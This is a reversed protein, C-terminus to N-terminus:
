GAPTSSRREALLRAITEMLMRPEVPKVLHQTFGAEESRRRDQEQGWGTVAVLVAGRGGESERIRRAVELGDMGPLGIDLLVIEPLFADTEALAAVGDHAVRTEYGIAQLLASSSEAADANDDVILVRGHGTAPRRIVLSAAAPSASAPALPIGVTFTSGTGPGNSAATVTGGHLDVIRKVLALGVGLGNPTRSSEGRVFTDFVRPLMEPAIGDGEDRIAVVALPDSPTMSVTIAAPRHTYKAANQLLNVFVQELRVPDADVILPDPPAEVVVRQAARDISPRCMEIAQTLTSQLEVPEKRLEITGRTIRSVDMLDDILRAMRAIQREIMDRAWRLEPPGEMQLYELANRVPALPNRLEHALVALFEDKRRDAEHLADELQRLDTVDTNTGFWRIVRGSDDRIPVARSLFWRYEGTRSRLPFTDEWPEGGAVARQFGEAVREVHDPHHFGRAGVGKMESPMAGTFEYWRQNFWTPTGREDCTWVIQDIHNALERLRDESARLEREALTRETVDQITAFWGTVTGDPDRDPEYRVHMIRSGTGYPLPAEYEVVEGALAREFYPRLAEVVEPGLVDAIPHGIIRDLPYGYFEAYARNASRYRLDRGCHTLMVSTNRAMREFSDLPTSTM